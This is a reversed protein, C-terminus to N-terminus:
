NRQIVYLAYRICQKIHENISFFKSIRKRYTFLKLFYEGRKFEPNADNYIKLHKFNGRGSLGSNENTQQINESWFQYVPNTLVHLETFKNEKM